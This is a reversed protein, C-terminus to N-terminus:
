PEVRARESRSPAPKGATPPDRLFTKLSEIREEMRGPSPHIEPMMRAM